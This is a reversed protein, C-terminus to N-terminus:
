LLYLGTKKHRARFVASCAGQGIRKEIVLDSQYLIYFNSILM